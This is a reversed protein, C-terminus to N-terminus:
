ASGGFPLVEEWVADVEWVTGDGILVFGVATAVGFGDAMGWGTTLAVGRGVEDTGALAGVTVVDDHRATTCM